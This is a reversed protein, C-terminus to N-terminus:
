DCTARKGKICELATKYHAIYATGCYLYYTDDPWKKCEYDAISPGCIQKRGNVCSISDKYHAIYAGGCYLYYTNDPWKACEWGPVPDDAMALSGCLLGLALLLIKM